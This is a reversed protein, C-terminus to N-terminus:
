NVGTGTESISFNKIMMKDSMKRDNTGGVVEEPVKIFLNTIPFDLHKMEQRKILNAADPPKGPPKRPM